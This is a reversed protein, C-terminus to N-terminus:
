PLSLFSSFDIGFFTAFLLGIFLVVAIFTQVIARLDNTPEERSLEYARPQNENMCKVGFVIDLSMLM